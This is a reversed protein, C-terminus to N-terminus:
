SPQDPEPTREGDTQGEFARRERLYAGVRRHLTWDELWAFVLVPLLLVGAVIAGVAPAGFASFLGFFLAAILGSVATLGWSARRYRALQDELPEAGLRIRGLKRRWLREREAWGAASPPDPPPAGPEM